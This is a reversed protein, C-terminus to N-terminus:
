AIDSPIPAFAMKVARDKRTAHHRCVRFAGPRRQSTAGYFMIRYAPKGCVDGDALVFMPCTNTRAGRLVATSVSM